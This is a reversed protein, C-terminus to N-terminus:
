GSRVPAPAATASETAEHRATRRLDLLMALPGVITLAYMPPAPRFVAFAGVDRDIGLRIACEAAAVLVAVLIRGRRTSVTTRPDTVMFFLFLQYLPGTVPAIEILPPVGTIASRLFAFAVFAVLYTVTVHLIKARWAIVLGVCWIVANTSLENGLDSGLISMSQPALLLMACVGFNTPNWLHRGRYTLAYKSAIALMAVFAVPWLVGSAPKTLLTASIGSVYASQLAPVRGRVVLGLLAELAMALGLAAILRDAGGLTSGGIIDYRWEGLVLILTILISILWPPSLRQWARAPAAEPRLTDDSQTM